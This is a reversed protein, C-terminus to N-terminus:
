KIKKSYVFCETINVDAKDHTDAKSNLHKM